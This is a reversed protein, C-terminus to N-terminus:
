FQYPVETNMFREWIATHSPTNLDESGYVIATPVHRLNQVLDAVNDVAGLSSQALPFRAASEIAFLPNLSSDVPLNFGSGTFGAWDMAAAFLHPYYAALRASGYGGMSYGGIVVQDDD